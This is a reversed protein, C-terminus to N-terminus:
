RPFSEPGLASLAQQPITLPRGQHFNHATLEALPVVAVGFPKTAV